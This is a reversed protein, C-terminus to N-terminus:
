RDRCHRNVGLTFTVRQFFRKSDQYLCDAQADASASARLIRLLRAFMKCDHAGTGCKVKEVNVFESVYDDGRHFAEPLPNYTKGTSCTISECQLRSV